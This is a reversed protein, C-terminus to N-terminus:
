WCTAFDPGLKAKLEPIVTDRLLTIYRSTTLTTRLDEPDQIEDVFYPGIVDIKSHVLVFLIVKPGRFAPAWIEEEVDLEGRLRWLRDNQRNSIGGLCIASEDSFCINNVDIDQISLYRHMSKAFALRRQVDVSKM